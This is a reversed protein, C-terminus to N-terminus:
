LLFDSFEYLKGVRHIFLFRQVLSGLLLCSLVEKGGCHILMIYAKQLSSIRKQLFIHMSIVINV